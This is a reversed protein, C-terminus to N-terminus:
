EPRHFRRSHDLEKIAKVTPVLAGADVTIKTLFCYAVAVGM